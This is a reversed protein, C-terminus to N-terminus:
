YYIVKISILLYMCDFNRPEGSSKTGINKLLILEDAHSRCIIVCTKSKVTIAMLLASM